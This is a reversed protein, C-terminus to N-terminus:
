KVAMCASNALACSNKRNSHRTFNSNNNTQYDCTNCKYKKKGTHNAMHVKFGWSSGFEKGCEDCSFLKKKDHNLDESEQTNDCSQFTKLQHLEPHHFATILGDFLAPDHYLMAKYPNEM